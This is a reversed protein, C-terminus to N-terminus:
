GYFFRGYNCIWEAEVVPNSPRDTKKEEQRVTLRNVQRKWKERHKTWENGHIRTQLADM